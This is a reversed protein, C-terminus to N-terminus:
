FGYYDTQLSAATYVNTEGSGPITQTATITWGTVESPDLGDPSEIYWYHYLAKTWSTTNKNCENFFYSVVAADLVSSTTRQMPYTQGNYKFDVKWNTDDDNWLTVIFCNKLFSRGTYKINNSGGTSNSYWNYTYGNTGTWNQNGNYVRMQHDKPFGTSKALWNKMHNGEIEYISYGNPAGDVNMNCAWWGGCAGGHVHEYVALGNKTKFRTHRYNQPYHTHGIMIHAENFDRMLALTEEYYKDKNMSAGGSEAGSRFPIHCCLILMKDEKDDVAALDEQLWKFQAKSFGADYDWSKSDTETCVINDMVVIHVKGRNFSYDTPGYHSTYDETATMDTTAKANHDHNGICQFIPLYKGGGISVNEMTAKMAEWLNPTDHVIDGLTVAYANKYKGAAQSSSITSSIDSITEDQYRGVQKETSCQPDGIAILTFNEESEALPTLTFDNRNVSNKDIGIKYFVPKNNADLPVQYESPLSIYVTKAYRSREFQYVGNADTRVVSYGDSVAVGAIGKGTKSDSVLGILNNGEKIATGNIETTEPAPQETGNNDTSGNDPQETKQCAVAWLLATAAFTRFLIHRINM